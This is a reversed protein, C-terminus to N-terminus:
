HSEMIKEKSEPFLISFTTGQGLQSSVSIIGKHENIITHVTSLGLGTGKGVEKTTFFPEFIREMTAKDMGHGTDSIDIKCYDTELMNPFQLLYNDKAPIHSVQITINGESDMADVANNIINVIVQHLQTQNGLILHNQSVGILNIAVSSPITPHLLSLVNELVHAINLPTHEYFQQRRGFRVIRGVLDQGRQAAELVKGLNQYTISEKSIDERAIEVYGKIAYILNNFDHAIGGALTGIAQLKQSQLLAAELKQKSKEAKIREAIEKKFEATVKKLSASRSRTVQVLRVSIGCLLAMSIGVVLVIWPLALHFTLIFSQTGDNKLLFYWLVITLFSGSIAIIQALWRRFYNVRHNKILKPRNDM